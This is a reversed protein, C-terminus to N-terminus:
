RYIAKQLTPDDYLCRHKEVVALFRLEKGAFAVLDESIIIKQVEFWEGKEKRKEKKKEKKGKEKRKEKKKGEEKLFGEKRRKKKKKIEEGPNQPTM